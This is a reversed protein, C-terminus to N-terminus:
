SAWDLPMLPTVQALDLVVLCKGAAHRVGDGCRALMRALLWGGMYRFM